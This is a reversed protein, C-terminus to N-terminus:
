AMIWEQSELELRELEREIWPKVRIKSPRICTLLGYRLADLAHDSGHTDLDEVKRKDYQARPLERLLNECGEMIFIKPKREIKDVTGEWDLYDRLLSWGSMRDNNAKVVSIGESAMLDAISRHTGAMADRKGTVPNKAWMAPDSVTMKYEEGRSMNKICEIHYPLEREAEYHERYVIVNYDFDVAFWICCFPARYGYDIARYRNYSQPVPGNPIVHVDKRFNKFFQGEFVDWDGDRWARRLDDPLGDLFSIYQPDLKVLTPNDQVKAPIFIRARGTVEDVYTKNDAVDVWRQKVWEHGPGGPNTTAFVQPHLGITSRCSSILKLYKIVEDIQTLEEILIKQYEHGQYKEYADADKLHGTRIKAGGPFRFEVPNGVVQVGLPRYFIKARDVWDRLDEVNKRIVLARYNENSLYQPEVLWALGAETKGGGRAGGYLIEFESRSLAETQPGEHPKWYVKEM